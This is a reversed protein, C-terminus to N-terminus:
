QIIQKKKECKPFSPSLRLWPTRMMWQGAYSERVALGGRQSKLNSEKRVSVAGEREQPKTGEEPRGGGRGGKVERGLLETINGLRSGPERVREHRM